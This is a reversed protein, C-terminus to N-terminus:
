VHISMNMFNFSSVRRARRSEEVYIANHDVTVIVLHVHLKTQTLLKAVSQVKYDLWYIIYIIASFTLCLEIFSIEESICQIHGGLMM